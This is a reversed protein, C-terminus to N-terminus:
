GASPLSFVRGVVRRDFNKRLRPVSRACRRGSRRHSSPCGPGCRGPAVWTGSWARGSEAAPCGDLLCARGSRVLPPVEEVPRGHHGDVVPLLAARHRRSSGGHDTAPPGCAPDSLHQREDGLLNGESPLRVVSMPDPSLHVPEPLRRFTNRLNLFSSPLKPFRDLLESVQGPAESVLEPAGSRTRSSGSRTRSGGFCTGSTGSRTGFSRSRSRLERFSKRLERVPKRLSEV